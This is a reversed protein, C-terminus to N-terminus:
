PDVLWLIFPRIGNKNLLLMHYIVKYVGQYEIKRPMGLSNLPIELNGLLNTIVFYFIFLFNTMLSKIFAM